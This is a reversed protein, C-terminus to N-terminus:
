SIWVADDEDDITIGIVLAIDVADFEGGARAEGTVVNDVTTEVSRVDISKSCYSLLEDVEYLIISLSVFTSMFTFVRGGTKDLADDCSAMVGNDTMTGSDNDNDMSCLVDADVDVDVDTDDACARVLASSNCRDIDM